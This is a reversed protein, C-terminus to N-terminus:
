RIWRALAVTSIFYSVAFQM